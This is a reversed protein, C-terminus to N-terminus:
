TRQAPIVGWSRDQDPALQVKDLAHPLYRQTAGTATTGRLCALRYDDRRRARAGRARLIARMRM